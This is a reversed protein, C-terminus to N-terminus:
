AQPPPPPNHDHFTVIARAIWQFLRVWAWPVGVVQHQMAELLDEVQAMPVRHTLRVFNTHIRQLTREADLGMIDDGWGRRRRRPFSDPWRPGVDAYMHYIKVIHRWTFVHRKTGYILFCLFNFLEFFKFLPNPNTVLTVTHQDQHYLCTLIERFIYGQMPIIM